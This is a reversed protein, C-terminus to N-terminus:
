TTFGYNYTLYLLIKLLERGRRGVQPALDSTCLCARRNRCVLSSRPRGVGNSCPSPSERDRASDSGGGGRRMVWELPVCELVYAM